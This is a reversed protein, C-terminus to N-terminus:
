YRAGGIPYIRQVTNGGSTTANPNMGLPYPGPSFEAHPGFLWVHFAKRIRTVWVPPRGGLIQGPLDIADDEVVVVAGPLDRLPSVATGNTWFPVLSIRPLMQAAPQSPGVFDPPPVLLLM